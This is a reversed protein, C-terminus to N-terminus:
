VCPQMRWGSSVASEIIGFYAVASIRLLHLGSLANHLYPQKCNMTRVHLCPPPKTHAYGKNNNQWPLDYYTKLFSNLHVKWCKEKISLKLYLIYSEIIQSPRLNSYTGKAAVSCYSNGTQSGAAAECECMLCLLAEFRGKKSKPFFSYHLKSRCSKFCRQRRTLRRSIRVPHPSSSSSLPDVM